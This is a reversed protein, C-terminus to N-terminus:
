DPSLETWITSLMRLGNVIAFLALAIATIVVLAALNAAIAGGLAGAVIVTLAFLM